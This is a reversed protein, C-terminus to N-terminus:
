RQDQKPWKDLVGSYVQMLFHSTLNLSNKYSVIKFNLLLTSNVM